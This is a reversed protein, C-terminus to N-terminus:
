VKTNKKEAIIRNIENKKRKEIAYEGPLSHIIAALTRYSDRGINHEDM